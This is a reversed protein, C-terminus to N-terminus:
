RGVSGQHVVVEQADLCSSPEDGSAVHEGAAEVVPEDALLQRALRPRLDALAGVAERGRPLGEVVHFAMPPESTGHEVRVTVRDDQALDAAQQHPRAAVHPVDVQGPHVHCSAVTARAADLSVHDVVFAGERLVVDLDHVPEQDHLLGAAHDLGERGGADFGTEDGGIGGQM